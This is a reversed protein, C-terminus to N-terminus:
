KVLKKLKRKVYEAAARTSGDNEYKKLSFEYVHYLHLGSKTELGADEAGSSMESVLGSKSKVTISFIAQSAARPKGKPKTVSISIRPKDALIQILEEYEKNDYRHNREFEHEFEYQEQINKAHAEVHADHLEFNM